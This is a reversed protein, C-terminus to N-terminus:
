PVINVLRRPIVIVKKPPKGGLAQKIKDDELAIKKIEEESAKTSVVIRSKVKGSIQLVLEVEDAVLAATNYTPWKQKLISEGSGEAIKSWMEEAIHPTFPSILMIVTKIAERIVPKDADNNKEITSYIENVLEMLSSIATNYELKPDIDETVKKITQHM